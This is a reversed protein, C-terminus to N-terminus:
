MCFGDFHMLVHLTAHGHGSETQDGWAVVAMASAACSTSRPGSAKPTPSKQPDSNHISFPHIIIHKDHNIMSKDM